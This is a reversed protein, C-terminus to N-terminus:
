RRHAEGAGFWRALRADRILLQGLVVPGRGPPVEDCVLRLRERVQGLDPRAGVEAMRGIGRDKWVQAGPFDYKMSVESFRRSQAGAKATVPEGPDVVAVVM